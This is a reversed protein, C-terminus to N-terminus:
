HNLGTHSMYTDVTDNPYDQLSFHNAVVAIYRNATVVASCARNSGIETPFFVHLSKPPINVPQSTARWSGNADYYNVTVSATNGSANQVNLGTWWHSRGQWPGYDNMVWPMVVTATGGGTASYSMKQEQKGTKFNEQLVVAASRYGARTVRAAGVFKENWAGCVGDPPSPFVRALGNTFYALASGCEASTDERFYHLNVPQASTATDQFTISTYWQSNAGDNNRQLLPLYNPVYGTPFAEYSMFSELSGNAGYDRWNNAVAVLLQSSTVRAGGVFPSSTTCGLTGDRSNFNRSGNTPITINSATCGSYNGNEPIYQVQVTAQAAGVNFLTFDSYMNNNARQLLPLYLTSAAQSLGTYSGTAYPTGQHMNMVVVSVDEGGDVIASGTTDAPIRNYQPVNITCQQNSNLYCTDSGKPTSTGNTRFYNVQVNRPQAGDNRVIIESVWGDKNRLDPLYTADKIWALGFSNDGESSSVNEVRITYWGTEDATFDVVEYNNYTSSSFWRATGGPDRVQLNLNTELSDTWGWWHEEANSWWTLAIRIREGASAPFIRDTSEGPPLREPPWGDGDTDIQSGWWCPEDCTTSDAPNAAAREALAGDIAGAGDRDSLRSSGEINHVASALIIAKNAEPWDTLQDTADADILIAALGSVQPAALSTAGNLGPPSPQNGPGIVNFGEDSIAVVEPKERDNGPGPDQFASNNNMSDDSWAANGNDRAAGVTLVNWGRGPSGVVENADDGACAILLQWEERAWYDFQKDLDHLGTDGYYTTYSYNVVDANRPSQIAWLLAQVIDSNSNDEGASVIEAGPAPGRYQNHYSAASSAVWTAHEVNGGLWRLDNYLHLTVNDLAPDVNGNEVVAIRVGSGDNERPYATSIRAGPVASDLQPQPVGEDLHISGVDKRAAVDLIVDKPLTVYISPGGPITQVEFGQNQLSDAVPRVAAEVPTSRLRRYEARIEDRLAADKVSWPRKGQELAERAEPFTEALRRCIGSYDTPAVVWIVVDVVEQAEMGGLRDYLAPELKGYRAFHVERAQAEVEQWDLIDGSALDVAVMHTRGEPRVDVITVLWFVRDWGEFDEQHEDTVLLHELPLRERQVVYELARQTIGPVPPEAPPTPTPPRPSPVPIPSDFLSAALSYPRSQTDALAIGLVSVVVLAALVTLIRSVKSHSM